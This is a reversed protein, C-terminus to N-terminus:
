KIPVEIQEGMVEVTLPQTTTVEQPTWFVTTHPVFDMTCPRDPLPELDIRVINGANASEVVHIASGIYPCTSSGGISVAIKTGNELWAAVPGDMVEEALDRDHESTGEDSGVGDATGHADLEPVGRFQEVPTNGIPACAALLLACAAAVGVGVIRKVFSHQAMREDYRTIPSEDPIM